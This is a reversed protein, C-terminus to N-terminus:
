IIKKSYILLDFMNDGSIFWEDIKGSLIYGCKRFLHESEDNGCMIKALIIRLNLLKAAYTECLGLSRRAYGNRRFSPKIYIGIQATRHISSIEFLDCLGIIESNYCEDPLREIILRIQGARFPDADYNEAYEKLNHLSYPAIISNMEWQSSDSECNWMDSADSPEVARLRLVTDRLFEM